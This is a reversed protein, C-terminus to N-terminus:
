TWTVNDNLNPISSYLHCVIVAISAATTSQQQSSGSEFKITGTKNEYWVSVSLFCHFITTLFTFYSRAFVSTSDKFHHRQGGRCYCFLSIVLDVSRKKQAKLLPFMFCQVCFSILATCCPALFVICHLIIVLCSRYLHTIKSLTQDHNWKKKKKKVKFLFMQNLGYQRSSKLLILCFCKNEDWLILSNSNM